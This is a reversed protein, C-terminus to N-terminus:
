FLKVATDFKIAILDESRFMREEDYQRKAQLPYAKPFLHVHKANREM